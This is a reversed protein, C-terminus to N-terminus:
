NKEMLNNMMQILIDEDVIPKSMYDNFGFQLFKEKDGIMAHATLAIVPIDKIDKDERIKIIVQTGDMKPLSIDLLIIDPKERKAIDLGMQGDTAQILEFDDELFAELVFMNDINDEIILVRKDM